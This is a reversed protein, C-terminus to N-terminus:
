EQLANECWAAVRFLNSESFATGALQVALPLGDDTWCVPFSIVPLGTLSWPSNFAPDGTTSRDPAPSTTAPALLADVDTFCRLMERQLGAQHARAYIYDTASAAIGEEVLERIRPQYDGAHARLRARHWAAAEAAMILRHSKIVDHFRDPLRVERVDAGAQKLRETVLEMSERVVPEALEEFHGRLRGLRPPRASSTIKGAPVYARESCTPDASDPGAILDLVIALDEVTRAIPGPHDMSGALPLFGHASVRGYTPKIGAVGCYAAPRTISGGTQSGLAAFCMGCATAAASGSSSGGPTRELNWPNRTVPPDFSAFQTTVTKGLFVAGADRLRKVITADATAIRDKWPAFGAATPWGAVDIIDKIAIPIGHLPGRDKGSMLEAHCSGAQRRAAERDVFVWARVEAERADIAALCQDLLAHSTTQRRRLREAAAAITDTLRLFPRM